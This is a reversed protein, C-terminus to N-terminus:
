FRGVNKFKWEQFNIFELLNDQNRFNLLSDEFREFQRILIELLLDQELRFYVIGDSITRVTSTM